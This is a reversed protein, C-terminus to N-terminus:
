PRAVYTPETIILLALLADYDLILLFTSLVTIAAFPFVERFTSRSIKSGTAPRVGGSWTPLQQHLWTEALEHRPAKDKQFDHVLEVQRATTLNLFSQASAAPTMGQSKVLAAQLHLTVYNRLM